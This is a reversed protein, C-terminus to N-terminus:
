NARSKEVIPSDKKVTHKHLRSIGNQEKESAGMAAAFVRCSKPRSCLDSPLKMNPVEEKVNLLSRGTGVFLM